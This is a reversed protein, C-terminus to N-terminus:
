SGGGGQIWRLLPTWFRAHVGGRGVHEGATLLVKNGPDTPSGGFKVPAIEHVHM